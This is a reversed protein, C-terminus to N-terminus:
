LVPEEDTEDNEDTLQSSSTTALPNTKTRRHRKQQNGNGGGASSTSCNSSTSSSSTSSPSNAINNGNGFDFGTIQGHATILPRLATRVSWHLRPYAREQQQMLEKRKNQKQLARSFDHKHRM